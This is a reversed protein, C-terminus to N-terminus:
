EIVVKGDVLNVNQTERGNHITTLWTIRDDDQWVVTWYYARPKPINRLSEMKSWVDKTFCHVSLKRNGDCTAGIEFKANCIDCWVGGHPALYTFKQGGCVPCFFAAMAFPNFSGILSTRQIIRISYKDNGRFIAPHETFDKIAAEETNQCEVVLTLFVIGM